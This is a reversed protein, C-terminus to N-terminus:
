TTYLKYAEACEYRIADHDFMPGLFGSLKPQGLLEPRSRENHHFGIIDYDDVDTTETIRHKGNVIEVIRYLTLKTM